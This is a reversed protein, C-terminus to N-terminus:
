CEKLFLTADSFYKKFLWYRFVRFFDYEFNQNSPKIYSRNLRITQKPRIFKPILSKLDYNTNIFNEYNENWGRQWTEKRGEGAIKQNDQEIRKIIKLILNDREIGNIETYSFDINTILERTKESFDNEDTGFHEAFNKITVKKM